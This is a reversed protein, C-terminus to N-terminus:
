RVRSNDATGGHILPTDVVRLLGANGGENGAQIGLCRFGDASRRWCRGFVLCLGHVRRRNRRPRREFVSLLIGGREEVDRSPPEVSGGKKKGRHEPRSRSLTQQGTETLYTHKM